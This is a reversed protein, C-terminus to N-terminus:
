LGPIKKPGVPIEAPVLWPEQLTLMRASKHDVLTGHTLLCPIFPGAKSKGFKADQEWDAVFTQDLPKEACRAKEYETGHRRGSPSVASLWLGLRESRGDPESLHAGEPLHSGRKALLRVLLRRRNAWSDNLFVDGEVTCQGGFTKLFDSGDGGVWKLTRRSVGVVYTRPRQCPFGLDQDHGTM